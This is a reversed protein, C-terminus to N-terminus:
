EDGLIKNTESAVASLEQNLEDFRMYADRGPKQDASNLMSFLYSIQDILKPQPYPGSATVLDDYVAALREKNKQNVDASERAKHIRAAVRNAMSLLDRVRLGLSEQAILDAHTVGDQM